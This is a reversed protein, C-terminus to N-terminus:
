TSMPVVVSRCPFAVTSPIQLIRAACARMRTIRRDLRACQHLHHQPPHRHQHRLQHRASLRFAPPSAPCCLNSQPPSAGTFFKAKLFTVGEFNTLSLASSIGHSPVEKPLCDNASRDKRVYPVPLGDGSFGTGDGYNLGRFMLYARKVEEQATAPKAKRNEFARLYKEEIKLLASEGPSLPQDDPNLPTEFKLLDPRGFILPFGLPYGAESLNDPLVIAVSLYYVPKNSANTVKIEIDRLLSDTKLNRIEIAIPVGTPIQDEIIRESDLHDPTRGRNRMSKPGVRKVKWEPKENGPDQAKTAVFKTVGLLSLPVVIALIWFKFTAVQTKM